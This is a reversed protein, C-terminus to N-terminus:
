GRLVLRLARETAPQLRVFRYRYTAAPLLRYVDCRFLVSFRGGWADSGRLLVQAGPALSRCHSPWRADAPRGVATALDRHLATVASEPLEVTRADHATLVCLVSTAGPATPGGRPGPAPRLALRRAAPLPPRPHLVAPSGDQRRQRLLARSTPTTSGNRAGASPSGSACTGAARTTVPSRARAAPTACCWRGAAAARSPVAPAPSPAWSAGPTSSACSTTSAPACTAPPLGGPLARARCAASGPPRRARRCSTPAPRNSRAPDPRPLRVARQRDGDPRDPGSGAGGTDQSSSGADCGTLLLALAGLGVLWRRRM